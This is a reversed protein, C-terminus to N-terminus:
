FHKEFFRLFIPLNELSSSILLIVTFHQWLALDPLELEHTVTYMCSLSPFRVMSNWSFSYTTVTSWYKEVPTGRFTLEIRNYCYLCKPQIMACPEMLLAFMQPLNRQLLVTSFCQHIDQFILGCPGNYKLAANSERSTVSSLLLKTNHILASPQKIM